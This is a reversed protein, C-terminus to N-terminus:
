RRITKEREKNRTTLETEKPSDRSLAKVMASDKGEEGEM